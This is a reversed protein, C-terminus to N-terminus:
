GKKHEYHQKITELTDLVIALERTSFYGDLQVETEYFAFFDLDLPRIREEILKECYEDLEKMHTREQRLPPRVLFTQPSHAGSM